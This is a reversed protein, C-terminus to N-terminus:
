VELTWAITPRGHFELVADQHTSQAPANELAADLEEAIGRLAGALEAGTLHNHSKITISATFM